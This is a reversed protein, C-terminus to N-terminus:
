SEFGTLYTRLVGMILRTDRGTKSKAIHYLLSM